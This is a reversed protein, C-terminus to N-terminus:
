DLTNYVGSSTEAVAASAICRLAMVEFAQQTTPIATSPWTGAPTEATATGVM